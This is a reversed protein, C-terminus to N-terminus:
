CFGSLRKHGYNFMPRRYEKSIDKNNHMRDQDNGLSKQKKCLGLEVWM